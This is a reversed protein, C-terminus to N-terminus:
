GIEARLTAVTHPDHTASISVRLRATGRPVTPFRIAPVLYGREELLGAAQLARDNDGLIVPVIPSPHDKAFADINARLNKRLADGEASRILELSAISAHAL